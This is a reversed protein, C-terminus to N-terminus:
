VTNCLPGLLALSNKFFHHIKQANLIIYSIQGSDFYNM